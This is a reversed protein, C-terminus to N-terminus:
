FAPNWYEGQSHINVHLSLTCFHCLKTLDHSRVTTQKLAEECNLAVIIASNDTLQVHREPKKCHTAKPECASYLQTNVLIQRNKKWRLLKHHIGANNKLNGSTDGSEDKVQTKMKLACWLTNAATNWFSFWMIKNGVQLQDPGANSKALYGLTYSHM